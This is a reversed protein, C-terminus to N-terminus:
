RITTIVDAVLLALDAAATIVEQKNEERTNHHVTISKHIYQRLGRNYVCIFVENNNGYENAHDARLLKGTIGVGIDAGVFDAINRSMEEATEASYVSYTDIVQKSVGMKIKFENSYTAAGFKFVESAGPMNTIENALGGGTCSEMTAITIGSDILYDVLEKVKKNM